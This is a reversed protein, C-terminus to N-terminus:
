FAFQFEDAPFRQQQKCMASTVNDRGAKAFVKTTRRKDRQRSLSSALNLVTETITM